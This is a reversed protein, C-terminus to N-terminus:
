CSTENSPENTMPLMSANRPRSIATSRPVAFVSTYTRLRPIASFSGPAGEPIFYRLMRETVDFDAIVGDKLPRIAVINGPTRGIMRKAQVGVAVITGTNTNIAVM